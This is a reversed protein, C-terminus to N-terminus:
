SLQRPSGGSKEASHEVHFMEHLLSSHVVGNSEIYRQANRARQQLRM